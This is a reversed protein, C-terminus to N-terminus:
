SGQVLGGVRVLWAPDESLVTLTSGRLLVVPLEGGASSSDWYIGLLGSRGLSGEFAILADFWTLWLDRDGVAAVQLLLLVM